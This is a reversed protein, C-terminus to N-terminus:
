PVIAVGVVCEAVSALAQIQTREVLQALQYRNLLFLRFTLCLDHDLAERATRDFAPLVGRIMEPSSFIQALMANTTM